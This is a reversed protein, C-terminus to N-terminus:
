LSVFHFYFYLKVREKVEVKSPPPYKVGRRPRKVGPIVRVWQIPPHIPSLPTSYKAGVPFKKHEETSQAEDTRTREEQNDQM